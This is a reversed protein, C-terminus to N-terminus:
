RAACSCIGSCPRGACTSTATSCGCSRRCTPMRGCSALWPPSPARQVPAVRPCRRATVYRVRVPIPVSGACPNVEVLEEVVLEVAGTRMRENVMDEPRRLVVGRVEVVSESRLHAARHALAARRRRRDPFRPPFATCHAPTASAQQCPPGNAGEDADDPVVLQVAGSSDRLTFFLLGGLNRTRQTRSPYIDVM